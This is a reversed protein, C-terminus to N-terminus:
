SLCHVLDYVAPLLTAQARVSIGYPNPSDVDPVVDDTELYRELARAANLTDPKATLNARVAKVEILAADTKPHGTSQIAAALRDLREMVTTRAADYNALAQPLDLEEDEDEQEDEEAEAKPVPRGAQKQSVPDTPGSTRAAAAGKGASSLASALLREVEDLLKQAADFERKRARMGSESTKLKIDQGAPTAQAVAEKIRPMLAALRANYAASPDLTKPEAKSPPQDQPAQTGPKDGGPVSLLKELMDLAKQAAAYDKQGEAKESAFGMLGRLKTSEPHKARLAEQLRDALKRVRQTYAVAQPSPPAPPATPKQAAASKSGTNKSDAEEEAEDEAVEAEDSGELYVNVKFRMETQELLAQRLKKAAGAVGSAFMFDIRKGEGACEAPYFKVGSAGLYESILKRRSPSIPRRMVLVAAKQGAIGVLAHMTIGGKGVQRLLPIMATTLLAPTDPEEEDDKAAASMDAQTTKQEAEATDLLAYLKDKAEGFVKDGVDKKKKVLLAVQKKCQDVLDRLAELRAEPKTAASKDVKALAKLLPGDDLELKHKKVFSTWAAENLKEAM